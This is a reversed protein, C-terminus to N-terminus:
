DWWLEGGKHQETTLYLSFKTQGEQSELLLDGGLLQALSKSIYLGLGTGETIRTLPSDLRSFKTFVKQQDETSIGIGYDIVDIRVMPKGELEAESIQIDVKDSEPSYKVANDILNTLVQELRDKDVWVEPLDETSNITIKHSFSHKSGVVESIYDVMEYIRVPHITLQLKRSELRSVALLDEVLRSLREAQNKIINVYKDRKEKPLEQKGNLLTSAFGKISTIPTRLEHSVTSIFEAQARDLDKNYDEIIFFMLYGIVKSEEDLIATKRAELNIQKGDRTFLTVAHHSVSDASADLEPSSMDQIQFLESTSKGIMEADHWGTVEVMKSSFLTIQNELYFAVFGNKTDRAVSELIEQPNNVGLRSFQDM